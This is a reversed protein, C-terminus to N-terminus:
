EKFLRYVEMNMKISDNRLAMEDEYERAILSSIEAVREINQVFLRKGSLVEFGLIPDECNGLDVLDIEDSNLARQLELHIDGISDSGKKMLVGIDIDGGPRVIGEKASGFIWAGEIEPYQSLTKVLTEILQSMPLLRPDSIQFNV